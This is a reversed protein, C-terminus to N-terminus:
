GASNSVGRRAAELTPYISLLQDVRTLRLLNEVEPRPNVVSVRGNLRRARNHASVLGGIGVSTLFRLGSLELILHPTEPRLLEALRAGLEEAEELRATGSLRVVHAGVEREASISLGEAVPVDGEGPASETKGKADM